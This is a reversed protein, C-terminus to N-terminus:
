RAKRLSRLREPMNGVEPIKFMDNREKVCRELEEFCLLSCVCHTLGRVRGVGTGGESRHKIDSGQLLTGSAM